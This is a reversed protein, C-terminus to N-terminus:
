IGLLYRRSPTAKVKLWGGVAKRLLSFDPKLEIFLVEDVIKTLDKRIQYKKTAKM